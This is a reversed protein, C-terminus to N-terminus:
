NEEAWPAVWRGIAVVLSTLLAGSIAVVVIGVYMRDALFLSWSNWILFGVGDNGQVFEVGVMVLIAAGIAVRLAVFIQPLAAPLLVHRLLNLRGAGFSQAAERYSLPVSTFAAVTPIIVLFFTSIAILLLEPTTGLGFILLLMPLLALKPVTWLAYVLPEFASRMVRSVGLIMGGLVGAASGLLFGFIVLRFSHLMAEQLRGERVLDVGASWIRAPSPFFRTDIWEANATVQWAAILVIPVSLSLALDIRRRRRRHRTPHLEARTPVREVRARQSTPVGASAPAVASGRGPDIKPRM